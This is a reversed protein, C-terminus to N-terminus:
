SSGPPSNSTALMQPLKSQLDKIFPTIKQIGRRAKPAMRWYRNYQAADIKTNGM